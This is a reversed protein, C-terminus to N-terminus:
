IVYIIHFSFNLNSPGIIKSFKLSAFQVRVRLLSCEEFQLIYTM